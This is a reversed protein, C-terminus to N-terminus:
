FAQKYIMYPEIQLLFTEKDSFAFAIGNAAKIQKIREIQGPSLKDAGTKVELEFYRGTDFQIAAIDL